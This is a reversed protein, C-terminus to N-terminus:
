ANAGRNPQACRGPITQNPEDGWPHNPNGIPAPKAPSMVWPHNPNGMPAVTQNPEDGLNPQSQADAGRLYMGLAHMTPHRSARFSGPKRSPPLRSKSRDQRVPSVRDHVRIMEAGCGHRLAKPSSHQCHCLHRYTDAACTAACPCGLPPMRPSAAAPRGRAGRRCPCSCCYRARRSDPVASPWMACRAGHLTPRACDHCARVSRDAAPRALPVAGRSAGDGWVSRTRNRARRGRVGAIM